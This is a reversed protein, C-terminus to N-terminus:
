VGRLGWGWWRGCKNSALYWGWGNHCVGLNHGEDVIVVNGELALGVAEWV